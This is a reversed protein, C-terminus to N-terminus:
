RKATSVAWSCVISRARHHRHLGTTDAAFREGTVAIVGRRDDVIGARATAIVAIRAYDKAHPQFPQPLAVLGLPLAAVAPRKLSEVQVIDHHAVEDGAKQRWGSESRGSAAGGDKTAAYRRKQAHCNRRSCRRAKTPPRLSKQNGAGALFNGKNKPWGEGK